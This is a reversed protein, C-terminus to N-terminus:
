WVLDNVARELEVTLIYMVCSVSMGHSTGAHYYKAM